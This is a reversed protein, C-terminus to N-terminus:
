FRNEFLSSDFPTPLDRTRIIPGSHNQQRLADRYLLNLQKGDEAIENERYGGSFLPGFGLIFDVQRGVTLNDHFGKSNVQLRRDFADPLAEVPFGGAPSPQIQALTAPAVGILTAAIALSGFCNKANM